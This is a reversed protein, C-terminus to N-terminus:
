NAEAEAHAIYAIVSHKSIRVQRGIKMSPVIKARVLEYATNRGINLMKALEPV